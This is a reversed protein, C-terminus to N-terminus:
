HWTSGPLNGSYDEDTDPTTTSGGGSETNDAYFRSTYDSEDLLPIDGIEKCVVVNDLTVRSSDSNSFVLKVANLGKSVTAGDHTTYAGNIDWATGFRNKDTAVNDSVYVLAGNVYVLVLIENDSIRYYEIRMSFWEGNDVGIDVRSGCKDSQGSSGLNADSIVLAGDSSRYEIILRYAAYVDSGTSGIILEIQGDKDRSFETKIDTVFVFRNAERVDSTLVSVVDDKRGNIVLASTLSGNKNETKTVSALGGSETMGNTIGSVSTTENEIVFNEFDLYNYRGDSEDGYDSDSHYRSTYQKESVAPAAKALKKFCVNDLTLEGRFEEDLVVSVSNIGADLYIDDETVFGSSVPIANATSVAYNDSVYKLSGNVYVLALIETNNIKRYEVELELWEGAGVDISVLNGVGADSLDSIYFNDKARNYTFILDYASHNSGVGGLKLTMARDGCSKPNLKMDLTAYVTDYGVKSDDSIIRAVDSDGVYSNIALAKDFFYGTKEPVKVLESSSGESALETQVLSNVGLDFTYRGDSDYETASPIGVYEEVESYMYCNNFYVESDWYRYHNYRFQHISTTAYHGTQSSIFGSDSEGVYEGNIFIKAKVDLRNSDNEDKYPIRYLEIRMNFWEGMAIGDVLNSNSVGDMGAYRDYLKVYRKGDEGDYGYFSLGFATDSWKSTFSMQSIVNAAGNMILIDSEFVYCQAGVPDDMINFITTSMANAKNKTEGPRTYVNTKLVLDTGDADDTPNKVVESGFWVYKGNEIDKDNPICSVFEDPAVTVGSAIDTATMEYGDFTVPDLPEEPNKVISSLSEFRALFISLDCKDFIDIYSANLASFLHVTLGSSCLGLSNVTSERAEACAVKAGQSNNCPINMFYTFGGGDMKFHTLKNATTDILRAANEQLMAMVTNLEADTGYGKICSKVYTMTIWPNYISCVHEMGDPILVVDVCSKFAAVANPLKRGFIAYLSSLKMLGDVRYYADNDSERAEFLGTEPDQISDLYELLFEIYGGKAPSSSKYSEATAGRNQSLWLRRDAEIIMSSDANLSNGAGYSEYPINLDFVHKKFMEVTKLYAPLYNDSAAVLVAKSVAFARGASLRLSVAENGESANEGKLRGDPTDYRPKEGLEEFINRAWGLDRGRRSGGVTNVDWQPHYFFGDAHQLSRAFSVMGERMEKPLGEQWSANLMGSNELYRIAQVTSELDPLYGETDRASNSYYFGGVEPDWLDALWIYDEYGYLSYLREIAAAVDEGMNSALQTLQSSIRKSRLVSVYEMDSFSDSEIVGGQPAFCTLAGYSDLFSDLAAELAYESSYAIAVTSGSSYVLWYSVNVTEGEDMIRELRTYARRSIDANTRGIVIANSISGTPSRSMTVDAGSTSKLSASFASISSTYSGDSYVTLVSGNKWVADGMPLDDAGSDDGAGSDPPTNNKDEDSGPDDAGDGIRCSVASLAISMIVLLFIICKCVVKM